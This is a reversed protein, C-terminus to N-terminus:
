DEKIRKNELTIANRVGVASTCFPLGMCFEINHYVCQDEDTHACEYFIKCKNEKPEEAM